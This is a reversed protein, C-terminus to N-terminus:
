ERDLDFLVSDLKSDIAELVKSASADQKATDEARLLDHTLNLAAMVAIREIGIVNSNRRIQEMKDSLIQASNQLADRESPQCNVQYDKELIRVKLSINEM